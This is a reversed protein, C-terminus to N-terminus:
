KKDKLNFYKVINDSELRYCYVENFSMTSLYTNEKKLSEFAEDENNGSSIGIVQTNACDPEISESNPQYTSGENTLFIYTNM